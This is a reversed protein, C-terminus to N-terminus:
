QMNYTAANYQQVLERGNQPRDSYINSLSKILLNRIAPTTNLTNEDSIIGGPYKRTLVFVFVLCLQFVDSYTGIADDGFYYNNIAEPSMWFIPGVKDKPGTIDLREQPNLFECLGFDSLVWTEGKILINEPKIDRHIAYKHLEELAECLGRFQPAYIDYELEDITKIYDLLNKDAKEMIVFSIEQVRRAKKDEAGVVGSDIYRIVHPHSTKQLLQVEQKFRLLSKKSAHMLFKIAYMTGTNDICEHVVGNGGAGIKDLVEYSKGSSSSITDDIILVPTNFNLYLEM